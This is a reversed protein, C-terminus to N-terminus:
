KPPPPSDWHVGQICGQQKCTALQTAATLISVAAVTTQMITISSPNSVPKKQTVKAKWLCRLSMATSYYEITDVWLPWALVLSSLM